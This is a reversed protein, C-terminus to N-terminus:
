GMPAPATAGAAPGGALDDRAAVEIAREIELLDGSGATVRVSVVHQGPLLAPVVIEGAFGARAAAPFTPYALAVNPSPLGIALHGAPHGDVVAEARAIGSNSMAWGRVELSGEGVVTDGAPGPNNVFALIRGRALGDADTEFPVTLEARRNDLAEVRILLRHEGDVLGTLPITGAFGAHAADPYGPYAAALDGGQVPLGFPLRTGREGDVFAEVRRVGFPALAWGRVVLEDGAATHFALGPHTCVVPMPREDPPPPRHREWRVGWKEEFRRQNAAAIALYEGSPVLKGVTAHYHHHVYVDRAWEVTYGAAKLRLVYDEDEFMGVEYREDLFGLRAFVDRRLAACFMALMRIPVREGDHAVAQERAVRVFEGYTQYSLEIQAENCTRNTAPGVLGLRPDALHLALRTLWGRPLMTDDNLIVLIEGNAAALALNNNEAFSRRQENRLVRVHSHREALAALYEPTGDTSTNDVVVLEYNPYDTNVLISAVCLRLCALLDTTVVLVSALPFADRVAADVAEWRAPWSEIAAFDVQRTRHGASGSDPDRGVGLLVDADRRLREATDGDEGTAAPAREPGEGGDYVVRWGWRSRAQRAADAWTPDAVRLVAAEIGHDHRVAALRAVLTGADAGDDDVPFVRYGRQRFQAALPHEADDVEANTAGLWVVDYRARETPIPAALAEEITSAPLEPERARTRSAIILDDRLEAM